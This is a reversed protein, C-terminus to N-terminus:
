ALGLLPELPWNSTVNSTAKLTVAIVGTIITM